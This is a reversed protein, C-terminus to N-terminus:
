ILDSGHHFKNHKRRQRALRTMSEECSLCRVARHICHSIYGGLVRVSTWVTAEREVERKVFPETLFFYFIFFLDFWTLDQNHTQVHPTWENKRACCNCKKGNSSPQYLCRLVYCPPRPRQLDHCFSARKRVLRM